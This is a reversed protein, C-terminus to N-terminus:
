KRKCWPAGCPPGDSNCSMPLSPAEARPKAPVSLLRELRHGHCEPCEAEEGDFVLAEFTHECTRCAYEYLPM